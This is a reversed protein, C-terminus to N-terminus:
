KLVKVRDNRKTSINKFLIAIFPVISNAAYTTRTNSKCMRKIYSYHYSCNNREITKFTEKKFRSETM